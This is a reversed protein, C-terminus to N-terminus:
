KLISNAINLFEDNTVFSKKEEAFLKVKNLIKEVQDKEAKM